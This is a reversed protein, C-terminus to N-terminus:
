EEGEAFGKKDKFVFLKSLIYNVIIVVVAAAIKSILDATLNVFAVRVTEYAIAELLWVTGFTIATDLGLTALRSASFKLLQNIVSTSEEANTFVWKKNTFFAFLVAFVWHLIQAVVRVVYFEASESSVHFVYEGVFLILFYTGMGVATTLVGFILYVIVERLKDKSEM